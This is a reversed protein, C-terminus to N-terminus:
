VEEYWKWNITFYLAMLIWLSTNTIKDGIYVEMANIEKIVFAIIGIIVFGISMRVKDIKKM